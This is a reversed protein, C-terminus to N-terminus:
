VKSGVVASLSAPRFLEQMSRHFGSIHADFEAMSMAGTVHLRPLAFKPTQSEIVGSTNLFASKFGARKAMQLERPTVSFSNGFPYALAWVEQGLADELNRKNEFIEKWADELRAQSLMPHSLTHAGICMGAESLQHLEPLNLMLFQRNLVPDERYKFDWEESLGLQM